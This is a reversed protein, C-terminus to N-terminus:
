KDIFGNRQIIIAFRKHMMLKSNNVILQHDVARVVPGLSGTKLVLLVQSQGVRGLGDLAELALKLTEPGFKGLRKKKLQKRELQGM